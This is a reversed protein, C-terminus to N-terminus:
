INYLMKFNFGENVFILPIMLFPSILYQIGHYCMFKFMKAFQFVFFKESVGIMFKLQSETFKCERFIYEQEPEKGDKETKKSKNPFEGAVCLEDMSAGDVNM